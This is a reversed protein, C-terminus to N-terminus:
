NASGSTADVSDTFRGGARWLVIAPIAFIVFSISAGLIGMGRPDILNFVAMAIAIQLVYLAAWPHMWSKMKWFGMRVLGM